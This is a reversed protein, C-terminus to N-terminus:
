PYRALQSMPPDGGMPSTCGLAGLLSLGSLSLKLGSIPEEDAEHRM